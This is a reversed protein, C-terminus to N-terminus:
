IKNSRKGCFPCYIVILNGTKKRKNGAPQYLFSIVLTQKMDPFIFSTNLKAEPYGEKLAEEVKAICDCKM